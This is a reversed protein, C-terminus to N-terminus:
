ITSGSIPLLDNAVSKVYELWIRFTNNQVLNFPLDCLIVTQVFLYELIEKDLSESLLKTRIANRQEEVDPGIHKVVDKISENRRKRKNQVGM